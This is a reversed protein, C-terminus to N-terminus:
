TTTKITASRRSRGFPWQWVGEGAVRIDRREFRWHAYVTFAAAIFLHSGLWIFVGVAAAIILYDWWGRGAQGGASERGIYEALVRDYDLQYRECESRLAEHTSSRTACLCPM